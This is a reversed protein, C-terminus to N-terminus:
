TETRAREQIQQMIRSLDKGKETGRVTKGGKAQMSDLYKTVSQSERPTQVPRLVVPNESQSPKGPAVTTCIILLPGSRLRRAKLATCYRSLKLELCAHECSEM